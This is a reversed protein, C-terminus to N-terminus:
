GPDIVGTNRLAIKLQPSYFPNEERALVPKGEDNKYLLREVVNGGLSALIEEVDEPLVKYYTIHDPLITVMPGNECFGNCGTKKVYPKVEADHNTVGSRFRDVVAQSGNALCGTGCCVLIERSM